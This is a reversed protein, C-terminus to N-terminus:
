QVMRDTATYTVSEGAKCPIKAVAMGLTLIKAFVGQVTTVTLLQASSSSVLKYKEVSDGSRLAIGFVWSGRVVGNIATPKITAELIISAGHESAKELFDKTFLNGPYKEVPM